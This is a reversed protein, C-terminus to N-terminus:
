HFLTIVVWDSACSNWCTILESIDVDLHGVFLGWECGGKLASITRRNEADGDTESTSLPSLKAATKIRQEPPTPTIKNVTRCSFLDNVLWIFAFHGVVWGVFCHLLVLCCCRPLQYYRRCSSPFFVASICPYTETMRDTVSSVSARHRLQKTWHSCAFASFHCAM